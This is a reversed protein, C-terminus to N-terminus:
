KARGPRKSLWDALESRRYRLRGVGNAGTAHCPIDPRRRVYGATYGLMEAAQELTLWDPEASATARELLEGLKRELVREVAREIAAEIGMSSADDM